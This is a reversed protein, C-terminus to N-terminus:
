DVRGYDDEIRIIDTEEYKGIGVEFIKLDEFAQLRHPTTKKVFYHSGPIVKMSQTGVRLIGSGSICYVMEDRLNHYHFSNRKGSEIKLIKVINPEDTKILFDEIGWPKEIVELM